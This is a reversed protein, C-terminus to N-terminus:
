VKQRPTTSPWTKHDVRSMSPIPRGRVRSSSLNSDKGSHHPSRISATHPPIQVMVLELTHASPHSNRIYSASSSQRTWCPGAAKRWLAFMSFPENKDGAWTNFHPSIGTSQSPEANVFPRHDHGTCILERPVHASRTHVTDHTYSTHWCSAQSYAILDWWL